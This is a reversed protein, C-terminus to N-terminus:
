ECVKVVDFGESCHLHATDIAADMEDFRGAEVMWPTYGVDGESPMLFLKSERDQVIYRPVFSRM